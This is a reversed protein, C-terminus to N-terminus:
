EPFCAHKKIFTKVGKALNGITTARGPRTMCRGHWDRALVLSNRSCDQSHALVPRSACHGHWDRALVLLSRSRDQPHALMSRSMCHGRMGHRASLTGHVIRRSLWRVDLRATATGDTGPRALETFSGERTGTGPCISAHQSLALVTGPRALETFSGVRMDLAFCPSLLSRTHHRVLWTALRATKHSLPMRSVAALPSAPASCRDHRCLVRAVLRVTKTRFPM